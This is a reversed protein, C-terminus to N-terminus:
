IRRTLDEPGPVDSAPSYYALTKKRCMFYFARTLGKIDLDVVLFKADATISFLKTGILLNVM